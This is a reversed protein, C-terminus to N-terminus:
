KSSGNRAALAAQGSPTLNLLYNIREESPKDPDETGQHFLVKHTAPDLHGNPVISQELLGHGPLAAFLAELAAVRGGEVKTDGVSFTVVAAGAADDRAAQAFVAAVAGQVAPTIRPLGDKGKSPDGRALDAAFTIARTQLESEARKRDDEARKTEKTEFETIRRQMEKYEDTEAFAAVAPAPTAAPAATDTTSVDTEREAPEEREDEITVKDGTVVAFIAAAKDDDIDPEEAPANAGWLLHGLASKLSM